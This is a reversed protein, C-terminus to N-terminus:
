SFNLSPKYQSIEDSIVLVSVWADGDLAEQVRRCKIFKKPVSSILEPALGAISKGQLWRDTWFLTGTGDGVESHVTAAFLAAAMPHVQLDMGLGIRDPQTKQLWLWRLNLSWGMIELDHIGLGGFQVPRCVRQCGVL